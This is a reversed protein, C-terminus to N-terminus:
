QVTIDNLMDEMHNDVQEQIKSRFDKNTLRVPQIESNTDTDDKDKAKANRPADKFQEPFSCAIGITCGQESLINLYLSKCQFQNKNAFAKIKGQVGQPKKDADITSRDYKM